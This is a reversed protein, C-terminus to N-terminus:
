RKQNIRFPSGSYRCFENDGGQIDPSMGLIVTKVSGEEFGKLDLIEVKGEYSRNPGLWDFKLMDFSQEIAKKAEAKSPKNSTSCSYFIFVLGIAAIVFHMKKM